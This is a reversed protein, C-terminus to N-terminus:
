DSKVAIKKPKDAEARPLTIHLLGRTFKAEVKNPDISFPLEITKTFQGHWREGRHYSEGEQLEEPARSGRLTLTKGIVSIDIAKPDVGPLETTVIATDGAVWVNMAPFEVTSPMSWRSFARNIRDVERWPDLFRGFKELDSWLM